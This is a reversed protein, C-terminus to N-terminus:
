FLNLLNMDFREIVRPSTLSEMMRENKMQENEKKLQENEEHLQSLKMQFIEREQAMQIREQYLEIMSMNLMTKYEHNEKLLLDMPSIKREIRLTQQQIKFPTQIKTKSSEMKDVFGSDGIKIYLISISSKKLLALRDFSDLHSLGMKTVIELFDCEFPTTGHMMGRFGKEFLYETFLEVMKNPYDVQPYEMDISKMGREFDLIFFLIILTLRNQYMTENSVTTLRRSIEQMLFHHIAHVYIHIYTDYIQLIEDKDEDNRYYTTQIGVRLARVFRRYYQQNELVTKPIYDMNIHRSAM